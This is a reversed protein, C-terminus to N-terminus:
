NESTTGDIAQPVSEAQIIGVVERVFDRAEKITGPSPGSPSVRWAIARELLARKEPFNAIIWHAADPKSVHKGTRHTFLARSMTLVAYSQSRTGDIEGIRGSWERAHDRASDVFEEDSIEPILTQPNPGIVTVGHHTILYWNMLWEIGTEIMHLPEGPSINAMHSRQTRFTRLADRDIYQVEIRDNWGPHDRVIRRHMEGLKGLEGATVPCELIATLDLDSTGPDFNGFVASGYLYIGLVNEGLVVQIGAALDDLVAADPPFMRRFDGLSTITVM